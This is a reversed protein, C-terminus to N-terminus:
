AVAKPHQLLRPGTGDNTISSNMSGQGYGTTEATATMTTRGTPVHILQLNAGGPTTQVNRRGTADPLM